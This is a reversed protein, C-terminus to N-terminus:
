STIEEQTVAERGQLSAEAVALWAIRIHMAVDSLPLPESGDYGAWFARRLREAETHIDPKHM